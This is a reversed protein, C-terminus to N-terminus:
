APYLGKAEIATGIMRALDYDPAHALLAPVDMQWRDPTGPNGHVLDLIIRDLITEADEQIAMAVAERSIVQRSTSIQSHTM